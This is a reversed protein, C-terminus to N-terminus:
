QSDGGFGSRPYYGFQQLFREIKAHMARTQRVVLSEGVKQIAVTKNQQDWADPEVFRPIATLLDAAANMKSLDYVQTITKGPDPKPPPETAPQMSITKRLDALLQTVEQHLKAQQRVAIAHCAVSESITGGIGDIEMWPGGTEQQITEILSEYDIGRSILDGVDYVVTTLTEEANVESTIWLTGESVFYTLKLPELMIKLASGLPIEQLNLTVPEDTAIGEEALSAAMLRVRIKQQEAIHKAVSQLSEGAFAVTVKAALAEALRQDASVPYPNPRVAVGLADTNGAATSKLAALLGEIEEHRKWNQRVLLVDGVGSLTGGTGDVEMWPGPTVQVILHSLSGSRVEFESPEFCGHGSQGFASTGACGNGNEKSLKMLWQVDYTRTFLQEEAEIGTTVKLVGDDIIWTLALPRLTWNLAQEITVDHLEDNLKEDTAIGEESLATEDIWTPIKGSKAMLDVFDKLTVDKLTVDIKTQMAQRIKQEAARSLDVLTPATTATTAPPSQEAAVTKSAASKPNVPPEATKAGDASRSSGDATSSGTLSYVSLGVALLCTGILAAKSMVAM